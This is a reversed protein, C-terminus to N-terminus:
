SPGGPLHTHFTDCGLGSGRGRGPSALARPHGRPGGRRGSRALFPLLAALLEQPREEMPAHGCDEIVVLRAAPLAAAIREGNRLPTLTDDRGWVLLAPTAVAALEIEAPPEGNSATLGHYADGIGAIRLRELYARALERTALTDDHFAKRLGRQVASERLAFSRLFLFSLPRLNALRTRRSTSYVPMATDVLAMTRVRAPQHAAIWLTLAGGYSHGVFHASAIGLRDLVGLVLRQQGALTYAAPDRPRQTYGFGNLDIAIVRHREALRPAVLRWSYTSEGFGHLLVVPEGSGLQEVHVRQGAVEISADSPLRARIAAEPQLAVCGSLLLAAIGALPIGASPWSQEAVAM